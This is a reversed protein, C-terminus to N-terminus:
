TRLPAQGGLIGRLASAFVPLPMGVSRGTTALLAALEQSDAASDGRGDRLVLQAYRATSSNPDLRLARKLADEAEDTRGQLAHVLALGGHTDGFTRDVANAQEFSGRAADARGQLLQSWALAHWTGLHEPMARTAQLLTNEAVPLEGLLMHAQGKGSLARGSGSHASLARDFAALAHEADAQALALTGIVLLAEHQNDQLELARAAHEAAPATSDADLMALALVGLAQADLPQQAELAQLASIAKDPEGALMTLRALLITLAPHQGHRQMAELVAASADDLRHLCMLAFAYDHDISVSTDRSVRLTELQRLAQTYEGCGLAWQSIRHMVAPKAASPHTILLEVAEGAQGDLVLEEGLAFALDINNPDSALYVRLRAARSHKRVM